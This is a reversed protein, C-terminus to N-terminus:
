IDQDTPQSCKMTLATPHTCGYRPGVLYCKSLVQELSVEVTEVDLVSDSSLLPQSGSIVPPPEDLTVTQSLANSPVQYLALGQHHLPVHDPKSPVSSDPSQVAQTLNLQNLVSSELEEVNVVM